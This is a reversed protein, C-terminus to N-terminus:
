PAGVEQVYYWRGNIWALIPPWVDGVDGIRVGNYISPYPSEDPFKGRYASCAAEVIANTIHISPSYSTGGSFFQIVDKMFYGRIATYYDAESLRLKEKAWTSARDGRFDDPMVVVTDGVVIFPTRASMYNDM